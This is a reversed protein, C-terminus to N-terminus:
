NKDPQVKTQSKNREIRLADIMQYANNVIVKEDTIFAGSYRVKGNYDIMVFSPVGTINLQKRLIKSSSDTTFLFPFDYNLNSVTSSIQESTRQKLKLNVAYLVLNTDNKYHLYLNNFDPFKKFCIPCATNWFDLIIIKGKSESFSYDDGNSTTLLLNPSIIHKSKPKNFIYSLYNPM